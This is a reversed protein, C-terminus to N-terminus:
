VDTIGGQHLFLGEGLSDQTRNTKIRIRFACRCKLLCKLKNTHYCTVDEPKILFPNKMMPSRDQCLNCSLM